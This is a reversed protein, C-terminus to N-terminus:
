RDEPRAKSVWGKTKIYNLITLLASGVGTANNTNITVIGTADMVSPDGNRMAIGYNAAGLMRIDNVGDGFAITTTGGSDEIIRQMAIGKDVGEATISIYPGKGDAYYSLGKVSIGPIGNLGEENALLEEKKGLVCFLLIKNDPDLAYEGVNDVYEMNEPFGDLQKLWEYGEPLWRQRETMVDYELNNQTCFDVLKAIADTPISQNYIDEGTNVNKVVAGNACMVYTCASGIQRAYKEAIIPPRATSIVIQAGYEEYAERIKRLNEESITKDDSLLTGDLDVFVLVKDM